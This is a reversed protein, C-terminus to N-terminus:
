PYYGSVTTAKLGPPRIVVEVERFDGGKEWTSQFALLYQSRLEREIISYVRPIEEVGGVFFARGGTQKALKLLLGRVMTDRHSMGLTIPYIATGSRRAFDLAEQFSYSSASDSGDSILILARKGDLGAFYHLSYILADYLVTDGKTTLDALGAALIRTDNTLPVRLETSDNFVVVAARDRPQVVSDFFNLAAEVLDTLEAEMSTSTDLVLGAYIPLDRVEEFRALAQEAGEDLVRFDSRELNEILNGKRDHVSTYLEVMNIRLNELDEPPNIFVLDESSNGDKLYAAARVYTIRQNKPLVIPQVWPLQYLAAIRTENLFFEVRDVKEGRPLDVDAVARLSETYRKGPYPEILRLAFRHPGGNISVQDRALVRGSPDLAIAELSHLMPTRGLDLEVSYPPRTKSMVPRGDLTFSVKAIGDGEASAEIRVWDTLLRDPPPKIRLLHQGTAIETSARSLSGPTADSFSVRDNRSHEPSWTPVDISREATFHKQSNLDELEFAMKYIGPRLSREIVLPIQDDTTKDLPVEFRYRFEEFLEQDRFVKGHLEFLCSEVGDIKETEATEADILFLGQVITRNQRRGPYSFQIDADLDGTKSFQASPLETEAASAQVYWLFPAYLAFLIIALSRSM